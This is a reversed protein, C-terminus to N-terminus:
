INEVGDGENIAEDNIEELDDEVNTIDNNRELLSEGVQPIMSDSMVDNQHNEEEVTEGDGTPNGQNKHDRAWELDAWPNRLMAPNFYGGQNGNPSNQYGGGGRGSNQFCGRGGSPSNLYNGRGGNPSNQFGGRSGNPSNQFGGRGGNPSNQYSGRGGNHYNAGRGRPTFQHPSGRIQPSGHYQGRHNPSNQFQGQHNPNGRFNNQNGGGGQHAEEGENYSGFGKWNQNRNKKGWKPKFDKGPIPTSSFGLFDPNQADNSGTFNPSPLSGEM